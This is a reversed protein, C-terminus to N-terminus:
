RSRGTDPRRFVILGTLRPRLPGEQATARPLAPLRALLREDDFKLLTEILLDEGATHGGTSFSLASELVALQPADRRQAAIAALRQLRKGLRLTAHHPTAGAIRYAAAQHLLRRVPGALSSLIEREEAPSPPTAARARAAERIRATVAQSDDTWDNGEWWLVTAVVCGTRGELAIGALAGTVNSAVAAVGEAIAGPLSGSLAERWRWIGRGEPGIGRLRPLGAKRALRELQHLRAEIEPGPAIEVVEITSHAAGRRVVRGNRQERRVDTWPLDYHVVQGASQLDLGEAAVDTTVLVTPRGIEAAAGHRNGPRFWDLVVERPLTARGLGSRTGTCWAISGVGLMNRLYPVTQRPGVFVVSLRDGRLVSRVLAVKDDPRGVLDHTRAIVVELAPLDELRLESECEQAPLLVWLLLQDDAGLTFRRLSARDFPRGADRADRAHLLLSRYRCLSWELAAASSSAARLFVSRILAAIGPNSSLQLSELAPLM